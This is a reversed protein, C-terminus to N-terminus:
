NSVHVEQVALKETYKFTGKNLNTLLNFPESQSWLHSEGLSRNLIKVPHIQAGFVLWQLLM